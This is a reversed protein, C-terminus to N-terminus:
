QRGEAASYESHESANLRELVTRAFNDERTLEISQDDFLQDKTSDDASNKGAVTARIRSWQERVRMMGAIGTVLMQFCDRMFTSRDIARFGRLSHKLENLLQHNEREATGDDQEYDPIRSLSDM